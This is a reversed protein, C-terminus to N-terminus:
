AYTKRNVIYSVTSKALGYKEALEVLTAGKERFARLERVQGATLKRVFSAAWKAKRRRAREPIDMMNDSHSGIAINDWADNLSDGDLHRVVVKEGLATEGYKQYAQLHAVRVTSVRDKTGSISFFRYDANGVHYIFTKLKYGRLGIVCGDPEVRYGKNKAWKVAEVRKSRRM